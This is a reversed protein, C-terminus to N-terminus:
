FTVCNLLIYEGDINKKEKYHLFLFHRNIAEVSTLDENCIHCYRAIHDDFEFKDNFAHKRGSNTVHCLGCKWRGEITWIDGEHCVKPQMQPNM